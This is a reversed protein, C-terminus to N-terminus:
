NNVNCGSTAVWDSFAGADRIIGDAGFMYYVHNDLSSVALYTDTIPYYRYTYPPFILLSVNGAPAFFTSYNAEAWSFLCSIPDTTGQNSVNITGIMYPHFRCHYTYTGPNNFMFTFSGGPILNSSWLNADQTTSHLVGDQNVWNVSDGVNLTITNPSFILNQIGVTVTGATATVSSAFFLSILWLLSLRLMFGGSLFLNRCTQGWGLM